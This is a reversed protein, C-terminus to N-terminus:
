SKTARTHQLKDSKLSTQKRGHTRAQKSWAAIGNVKHWSMAKDQLTHITVLSYHNQLEM